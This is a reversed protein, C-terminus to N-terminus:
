LTEVAQWVGPAIEAETIKRFGQMDHGSETNYARITAAVHQQLQSVLLLPLRIDCQHGKMLATVRFQALREAQAKLHDASRRKSPDRIDGEGVGLNHPQNDRTNGRQGPLSLLRAHLKKNFAEIVAKGAAHGIAKDTASGTWSVGGGDMSTRHVVIAGDSGAELVRQAAESCAVAGREFWIHTRYGVGIGYGEAQLGWALLEDVDEAKIADAPKLIFAVISRSSVEILIYCKIEVVRGTLDDIAVCDLRVDDLTYLECKRLKSYNRRMSPLHKGAAAQGINGWKLLGKPGMRRSVTKDSWPFEPPTAPLPLVPYSAQWWQQWTGLGPLAEGRHGREELKRRIWTADVGKENKDRGGYKLTAIRQIEIALEDPLRTVHKPSTYEPLLASAKRGGSLWQYYARKLTGFPAKLFRQKSGPSKLPTGHLRASLKHLSGVLPAGELTVSDHLRSFAAHLQSARDAQWASATTFTPM